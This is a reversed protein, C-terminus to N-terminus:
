VSTTKIAKRLLTALFLQLISQYYKEPSVEVSFRPYKIVARQRRTRKRIYGMNKGLKFTTDKNIKKPVQSDSLVSYESCFKALCMDNFIDLKPREKYRDIANTM